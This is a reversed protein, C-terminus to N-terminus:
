KGMGRLVWDCVMNRGCRKDAYQELKQLELGSRTFIKEQGIRDRGESTRGDNEWREGM